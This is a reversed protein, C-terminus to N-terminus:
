VGMDDDHFSHNGSGVSGCSSGVDGDIEVTGFGGLASVSDRRKSVCGLRGLGFGDGVTGTRESSITGVSLKGIIRLRNGTGGGTEDFSRVEGTDGVSATAGDGVCISM